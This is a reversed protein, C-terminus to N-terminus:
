DPPLPVVLKPTAEIINIAPVVTTDPLDKVAPTPSSPPTGQPSAIILGLINESSHGSMAVLGDGPAQSPPQPEATWVIVTGDVSGTALRPRSSSHDWAVSTFASLGSTRLAYQM